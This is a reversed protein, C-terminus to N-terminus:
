TLTLLTVVDWQIVRKIHHPPKCARNVQHSRSAPAYDGSIIIWVLCISTYPGSLLLRQKELNPILCKALLRLKSLLICHTLSVLSSQQISL